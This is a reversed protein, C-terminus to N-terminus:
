AAPIVSDKIFIYDKNITIVCSFPIRGQITADALTVDFTGGIKTVLEEVASLGIGFGSIQTITKTNSLQHHMAKRFLENVSLEQRPDLKQRLKQIDIGKGDDTYRISIGTQSPELDISVTCTDFSKADPCGHALTNNILHNMISYITPSIKKYVLGNDPRMVINPIKKSLQNAKMDLSDLIPKLADKLLLYDHERVLQKIQHSKQSQDSMANIMSLREYIDSVHKEFVNINIIIKEQYIRKYRSALNKVETFADSRNLKDRRFALELHHVAKSFRVLGVTLLNGKLTHLKRLILPNPKASANILNETEYWLTFQAEIMQRTDPTFHKLMELLLNIEFEQNNSKQEAERQKTIDKITLLIKEITGNISEIADWQFALYKVGDGIHARIEQPFHQKNIDFTFRDEGISVQIMDKILNVNDIDMYMKRLLLTELSQGAITETEFINETERSYESFIELHKGIAIIGITVNHFISNFESNKIALEETRVDVLHELNNQNTHISEAM